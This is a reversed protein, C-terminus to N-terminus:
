KPKLVEFVVMFVRVKSIGGSEWGCFEPRHQKQQFASCKRNGMERSHERNEWPTAALTLAPRLLVSTGFPFFVLQSLDLTEQTYNQKKVVFFFIYIFIYLFIFYYNQKRLVCTFFGLYPNELFGLSGEWHASNGSPARAGPKIRPQASGREREKKCLKEKIKKSRLFVSPYLM